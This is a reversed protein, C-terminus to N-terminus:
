ISKLNNINRDIVIQFTEYFQSESEVVICDTFPEMLDLQETIVFEYGKFPYSDCPAKEVATEFPMQNFQRFQVAFSYGFQEKNALEEGLAQKFLLEYNPIHQKEILDKEYMHDLIPAISNAVSDVLIVQEEQLSNKLETVLIFGLVKYDGKLTMKDVVIPAIVVCNGDLDAYEELDPIMDKLLSVDHHFFVQNGIRNLTDEPISILANVWDSESSAAVTYDDGSTSLIMLKKVDFGWKLTNITVEFLENIEVCQNINRIARNLSTLIEFKKQIVIKQENIAKFYLANTLSIYISTVVSEILEFITPDYARDSVSESITVLGVVKEKVILIIYEAKIKEFESLDEFITKLIEYDKKVHYVVKLSQPDIPKLKLECYYQSFDVINKYGKLVLHNMIPEYIFFSTVASATLERIIDICLQYIHEIKLESLLTRSCHNIFFLNFIKKDLEFNKEELAMFSRANEYAKNMLQNIAFALTMEKEGYAMENSKQAIIFGVLEDKVIIPIIMDPNFPAVDMSEFYKDYEEVLIRGYLTAILNMKDTKPISTLPAVYGYHRKLEFSSGEIIFLASAEFTLAKNVLEFGYYILQDLHLSQSFFDIAEVLIDCHNYECKPNIM